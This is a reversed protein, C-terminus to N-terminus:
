KSIMVKLDAIHQKVETKLKSDSDWKKLTNLIHECIMLQEDRDKIYTIVADYLYNLIEEGNGKREKPMNSLGVCISIASSRFNGDRALDIRYWDLLGFYYLRAMRLYPLKVLASALELDISTLNIINTTLSSDFYYRVQSFFDDLEIKTLGDTNQMIECLFYAAHENPLDKIGEKVLHQFKEQREITNEELLLKRYRKKFEECKVCMPGNRRM